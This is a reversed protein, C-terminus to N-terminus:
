IAFTLIAKLKNSMSSCSHLVAIVTVAHRTYFTVTLRGQRFSTLKIRVIADTQSTVSTVYAVSDACCNM